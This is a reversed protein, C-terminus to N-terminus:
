DLYYIYGINLWVLWDNGKNSDLQHDLGDIDDKFFHQVRFDLMLDSLKDLKYRVGVSSVISWTVGPSADVSGPDWQSYFNSANTVDGVLDPDSNAFTTTVKPSYSTLHIGLSGFPAFRSGFSQFSRISLPYFELQTGIDFNNAVGEHGRLRDADLSTRSADVFKGLHELKTRNWSIENRVKFHDNFFNDTTYCNCDARYSFNLYHVIGIGFGSNGFNTESDDRNGFDSRFQLPGAIVGIEHSFGLQASATQITIVLCLVSVLYKFNLM